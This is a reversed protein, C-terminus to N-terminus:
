RRNKSFSLLLLFFRLCNLFECFDFWIFKFPMKWRAVINNNNILLKTFRYCEESGWDLFLNLTQFSTELRLSKMDTTELVLTTYFKWFNPTQLPMLLHLFHTSTTKPSTKAQFSYAIIWKAFVGLFAYIEFIENIIVNSFIM